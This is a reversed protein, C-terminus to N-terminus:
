KCVEYLCNLPALSIAVGAVQECGSLLATLLQFVILTGVIRLVDKFM